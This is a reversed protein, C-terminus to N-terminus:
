GKILKWWAFPKRTDLYDLNERNDYGEREFSIDMYAGVPPTLYKILWEIIYWIYFSFLGIITVLLLWWGSHVFFIGILLAISLGIIAMEKQQKWHIAEHNLTYVYQQPQNMRADYMGRSIFVGFPFLTIASIWNVWRPLIRIKM